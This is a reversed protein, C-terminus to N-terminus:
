LTNVKRLNTHHAHSIAPFFHPSLYRTSRKFLLGIEPDFASLKILIAHVICYIIIGIFCAPIKFHTAAILPFSLLANAIALRKEVGAILMPRHLARNVTLVTGRM